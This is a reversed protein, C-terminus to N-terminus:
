FGLQREFMKWAEGIPQILTSSRSSEGMEQVGNVLYLPTMQGDSSFFIKARERRKMTQATGDTYTVTSNFAEHMHWRWPGTLERAFMHAGVRPWRQGDNEVLDAMWHALAHWNGRKDRWLFSDETWTPSYETTNWTQTHVLEYPGSYSNGLFMAVDEVGLAIKSSRHGPTWLPWPSPNTSHPEISSLVLEFDSWPGRIDEATAVSINNPWQEYSISSCTNRAPEDDDVGISYLLYKKDAPSWVVEPNHRFPASISDAYHYPGQPGARSEARIIFSFPRWGSLGCGAAFQSAVLHFLTSDHPDQLVTGGWSSNGYPGLYSSDRADASHNYGNQKRAPQLDLRGCDDGFWGPDCKCLKEGYDFRSKQLCLGNFSCDEDTKCARCTLTLVALCLALHCSLLM